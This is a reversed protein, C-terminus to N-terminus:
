RRTPLGRLERLSNANAPAVLAPTSGLGSYTVTYTGTGWTVAIV